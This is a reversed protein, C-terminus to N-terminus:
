NITASATYLCNHLFAQRADFKKKCQKAQELLNKDQSKLNQEWVAKPTPCEILGSTDAQVTCPVKPAGWVPQALIVLCTLGIWTPRHSCM